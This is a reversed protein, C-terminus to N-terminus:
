RSGSKVLKGRAVTGKEDKVVAVYIGAPYASIDIRLEQQGKPIIIEDQKRGFLDYIFLSYRTDLIPYRINIYQDAPNPFILLSRSDPVPNWPHEIGTGLACGPTDCGMSDLKIVWADQTGTDPQM